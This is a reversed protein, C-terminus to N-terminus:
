WGTQGNENTTPGYRDEFCTYQPTWFLDVDGTPGNRNFDLGLLAGHKENQRSEEKFQDPWWMLAIQTADQEISGSDRLEHVRPRPNDGERERRKMQCLAIVPVNLKLSLLRIQRSVETVKEYQSSKNGATMLGLHDVFIAGVGLKKKYVQCQTSFREIDPDYSDDIYIPLAKIKDAAHNLKTWEWSAVNGCEIQEYTLKSLISLMRRNLQTATMEQSKYLCTLHEHEALHMMLQLALSTKGVKPRAGLVFMGAESIGGLRDLDAFGTSYGSISREWMQSDRTATIVQDVANSCHSIGTIPQNELITSIKGQAETVVDIASKNEDPMLGSHMIQRGAECVERLLQKDRVIRAYHTIAASSPVCSFLQIIYGLGGIAQLADQNNLEEQITVLDVPVGAKHMDVIVQFLLAHCERFFSSPTLTLSAEDIADPELLMAGIVCQEAEINHPYLQIPEDPLAQEHHSGM